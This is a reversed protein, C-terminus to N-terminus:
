KEENSAKLKGMLAQFLFYINSATKNILVQDLDQPKIPGDSVPNADFLTLYGM